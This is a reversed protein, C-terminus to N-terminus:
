ESLGADHDDSKLEDSGDNELPGDDHGEGDLNEIDSNPDSDVSEPQTEGGADVEPDDAGGYLEEMEIRKAEADGWAFHVDHELPTMVLKGLRVFELVAIIVGTADLLDERTVMIQKLTFDGGIWEEELWGFYHDITHIKYSVRLEDQRAQELLGSLSSFLVFPNQKEMPKMVTEKDTLQNPRGMMEGRREWRYELADLVQSLRRHVLVKALLDEKLAQIEEGIDVEGPLLLKSKLEMLTSIIMLLDGSENLDLDRGLDELVQDLIELLRIRTLSVEEQQVLTLLLDLPGSFDELEVRKV